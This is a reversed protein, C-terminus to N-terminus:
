KEGMLVSNVSPLFRKLGACFLNILLLTTIVTLVFNPIAFLPTKPLAIYFLKSLVASVNIHMAFNAFSNSYFGRMKLREVVLDSANWFAFASAIIVIKNVMIPLKPEFAVYFYSYIVSFVFVILSIWQVKRSSKRSFAEFYHKGIIGGIIYYSIAEKSYFLPSPLGIDFEALVLLLLAISIGIHKNKIALDIIPAIIVFFMLEFIFWFPGNCGYHFVADFVNTLTLAFPERGGVFRSLATYSTVMEFLMWIINWALFPVLLTKIRSKLKALYVTKDYNRYFLVGSLVFFLIIAHSTIARKLFISAFRNVESIFGGDARYNAFSSVHIFFVLVSLFYSVITKKKWFEKM